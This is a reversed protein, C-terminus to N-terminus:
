FCHLEFGSPVSGYTLSQQMQSNLNGSYKQAILSGIFGAAPHFTRVLRRGTVRFTNARISCDADVGLYYPNTLPSAQFIGENSTPTAVCHLMWLSYLFAGYSLYIIANSAQTSPQGM